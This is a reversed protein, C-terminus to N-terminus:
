YKGIENTNFWMLTNPQMFNEVDVLVAKYDSSFIKIKGLNQFALFLQDVVGTSININNRYINKYGTASLVKVEVADGIKLGNATVVNATNTSVTPMNPTAAFQNLSVERLGKAKLLAAETLNGFFGSMPKVNLLRQLEKIEANTQGKRLVKDRNLQAPLVPAVPTTPTQEQPEQNNQNKNYLYYGVGLILATGGVYMATKKDKAIM